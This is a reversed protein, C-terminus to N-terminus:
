VRNFKFCIKQFERWVDGVKVGKTIQDISAAQMLLSELETISHRALLQKIRMKHENKIKYSCYNLKQEIAMTNCNKLSLLLRLERAIAWLILVPEIGENRLHALVNLVRGSNQTYLTDILDFVTFRANDSLASIVQEDSVITAHKKNNDSYLLSLKEIEQQTALLNGMTYDAILKNSNASLSIGLQQAKNSIWNLLNRNELPWVQVIVGNKELAKVWKSKQTASDLKPTTIILIKDTAPQEAYQQLAKSGLDGPKAQPLRLEVVQQTAFLSLNYVQAIFGQWDFGLDAQLFERHVFGHKQACQRISEKASDVLLHEDGSVLYILALQRNLQPILQAFSIKM